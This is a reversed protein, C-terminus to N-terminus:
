NLEVHSAFEFEGLRRWAPSSVDDDDNMRVIFFSRKQRGDERRGPSNFNMSAVGFSLGYRM